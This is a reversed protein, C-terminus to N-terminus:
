STLCIEATSSTIGLGAVSSSGSKRGKKRRRILTPPAADNPLIPELEVAASPPRPSPAGLVASGGAASLFETPDGGCPPRVSVHRSTPHCQAPACSTGAGTNAVLTHISRICPCLHFVFSGQFRQVCQRLAQRGRRQRSRVAGDRTPRVPQRSWAKLLAPLRKARPAAAPGPCFAAPGTVSAAASRPAPLHPDLEHRLSM